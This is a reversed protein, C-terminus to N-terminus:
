SCISRATARWRAANGRRGCRAGAVGATRVHRRGGGAARICPRPPVPRPAPGPKWAAPRRRGRGPDPRFGCATDEGIPRGRVGKLWRRVQLPKVPPSVLHVTVAPLMQSLVDVFESLSHSAWPWAPRAQRHRGIMLSTAQESIARHVLSSVLGTPTAAGPSIRSTTAGLGEALDLAELLSARLAQGVSENVATDIGVVSWHRPSGARPQVPLRAACCPGCGRTCSM